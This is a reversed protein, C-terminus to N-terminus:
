TTLTTMYDDMKCVGGNRKPAPSPPVTDVLSPPLNKSPKKTLFSKIEECKYYIGALLVFISIVSLWQTTTILVNKTDVSRSAALTDALVLLAEQKLANNATISQVQVLAKKQAKCAQRTKEAIAKGAAVRKANRQKPWRVTQSTVQQSSDVPQPTWSDAM